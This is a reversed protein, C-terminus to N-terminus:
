GAFLRIEADGARVASEQALYDHSQGFVAAM